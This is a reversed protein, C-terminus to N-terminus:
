RWCPVNPPNLIVGTNPDLPGPACIGIGSVSAPAGPIVHSIASLVSELGREATSNATMSVRVQASIEGKGNVLGAAVKTGGVDVGVFLGTELSRGHRRLLKQPVTIKPM